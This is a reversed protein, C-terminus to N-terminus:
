PPDEDTQTICSILLVCENEDSLDLNSPDIVVEYEQYLINYKVLCYLAVLVKDKRVKFVREYVEIYSSRGSRRVNLLNLDDPKRPLTTCLESIKQEVSVCHGMSGLTGNKLHILSM